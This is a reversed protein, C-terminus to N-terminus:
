SFIKPLKVFPLIFEGGNKKQFLHYLVVGIWNNLSVMFKIVVCRVKRRSPYSLQKSVNDVLTYTLDRYFSFITTTNVKVAVFLM